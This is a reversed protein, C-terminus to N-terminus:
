RGAHAIALYKIILKTLKTLSHFLIFPTASLLYDKNMTFTISYQTFSHYILQLMFIFRTSILIGGKPFISKHALENIRAIKEQTM